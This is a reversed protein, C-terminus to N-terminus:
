LQHHCNHSDDLSNSLSSIFSKIIDKRFFRNLHNEHDIVQDFRPSNQLIPPLGSFTPAPPLTTFCTALWTKLELYPQRGQALLNSHLQQNHAKAQFIQQRKLQEGLRV